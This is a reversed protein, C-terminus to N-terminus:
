PCPAVSFLWRQLVLGCVVQAPCHINLLPSKKKKKKLYIITFILILPWYVKVFPSSIAILIVLCTVNVLKM